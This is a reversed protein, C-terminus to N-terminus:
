SKIKSSEFESTSLDKALERCDFWSPGLSESDFVRPVVRGDERQTQQAEGILAHSRFGRTFPWAGRRSVVVGSM